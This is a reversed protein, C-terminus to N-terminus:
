RSLNHQDIEHCFADLGQLKDGKLNIRVVQRGRNQLVSFDGDAQALNLRAFSHAEGPVDHDHEYEGVIQLFAGDEPGGKHLQGTSHLYRPGYGMTVAMNFTDTLKGVLRSLQDDLQRNMPLYALVGLYRKGQIQDFLSSFVRSREWPENDVGSFIIQYYEDEFVPDSSLRDGGALFQETTAKAEAVNPEDFPNIDLYIGSIATAIEFGLYAVALDYVDNLTWNINLDNPRPLDVSTSFDSPAAQGFPHIMEVNISFDSDGPGSKMVPILGKGQKGTSEAVLQEVWAFLPHIKSGLGLSMINHGSLGGQGMVIGLRIAEDLDDFDTGTHCTAAQLQISDFFRNVREAIKYLDIGILAAPILGFFSLASYRGGIDAPNIFISAFQHAKAHAELSSGPDTIAVFHDGPNSVEKSLEDYCYRCLDMTERTGGSKSAVIILTRSLTGKSAHIQDPHTTDILEFEPFGERSPFITAFVEPAMSSGGMGLLLVRELWPLDLVTRSWEIISDVNKDLWGATDLWGLRNMIKEHDGSGWLQPDKALLRAIISSDTNM